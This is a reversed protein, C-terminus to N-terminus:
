ISPREKRLLRQVFWKRRRLVTLIGLEWRASGMLSRESPMWRMRDRCCRQEPCSDPSWEQFLIELWSRLVRMMLTRHVNQSRLRELCPLHLLPMHVIMQMKLLLNDQSVKLNLRKDKVVEAVHFCHMLGLEVHEQIDTIDMHVVRAVKQSDMNFCGLGLSIPMVSQHQSTRLQIPMLTSMMHTVSSIQYMAFPCGLIPHAGIPKATAASRGM